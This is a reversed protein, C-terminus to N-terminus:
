AECLCAILLSLVCVGSFGQTALQQLPVWWFSWACASMRLTSASATGPVTASPCCQSRSLLRMARALPWLRLPAPVSSRRHRLAPLTQSSGLKQVTPAARAALITRRAAGAAGLWTDLHRLCGAGQTSSWLSSVAMWLLCWGIARTLCRIFCLQKPDHTLLKPHSPPQEAECNSASMALCVSLLVVSSQLVLCRPSLSLHCVSSPMSSCNMTISRLPRAESRAHAMATALLCDWRPSTTCPHTCPHSPCGCCTEKKCRCMTWSWTM